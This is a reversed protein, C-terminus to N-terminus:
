RRYNHSASSYLLLLVLPDCTQLFGPSASSLRRPWLLRSPNVPQTDFFAQPHPALLALTQQPIGGDFSPEGSGVLFHAISKMVSPSAVPRITCM